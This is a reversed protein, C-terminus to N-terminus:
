RYVFQLGGVIRQIQITCECTNYLCGSMLFKNAQNRFLIHDSPELHTEPSGTPPNAKLFATACIWVACGYPSPDAQSSLWLCPALPLYADSCPSCVHVRHCTTGATTVAAHQCCSSPASGSPASPLHVPLPSSHGGFWTCTPPCSITWLYISCKQVKKFRTHIALCLYLTKSKHITSYQEFNDIFFWSKM